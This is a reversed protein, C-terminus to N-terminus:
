FTQLDKKSGRKLRILKFGASLGDHKLDIRWDLPRIAEEMKRINTATKKTSSGELPM